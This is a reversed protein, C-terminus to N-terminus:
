VFYYIGLGVVFILYIAGAFLVSYIISLKWSEKAIWKLYVLLGIGMAWVVNVVYILIIMLVMWGFFLYRQSAPGEEDEDQSDFITKRKKDIFAFQERMAPFLDLLMQFGVFLLLPIGMIRPVLAVDARMDGTQILLVLTFIFLISSFISKENIQIM